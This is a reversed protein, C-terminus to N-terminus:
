ADATTGDFLSEEGERRLLLGELEKGGAHDWRPFQKAADSFDGSNVMKLLTSSELAGIGLNFAFDVLADFQGQTLPVNVVQNIADECFSIDEALWAMVQADTATMGEYVGRIHGVGITWVGVSDQYAVLREGEEKKTFLLGTQSYKM